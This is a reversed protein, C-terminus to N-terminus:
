RPIGVFFARLAQRDGRSLKGAVTRIADGIFRSTADSDLQSALKLFAFGAGAALIAAMARLTRIM